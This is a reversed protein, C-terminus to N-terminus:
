IADKTTHCTFCGCPNAATDDSGASCDNNYDWRLMDPYPSGHARHCSICTVVDEGPTVVSSVTGDLAQKAVPALPDYVTYAAYEGDDRLAVDSPHRIWAGSAGRMGESNGATVAHHFRSHCGACLEGISNNTLQTTTSYDVTTGKYVNHKTPSVDQEWDPDEVGTVGSALSEAMANGLFRYWGDDAGAIGTPSEELHHTGNAFHCGQCAFDETALTFHCNYCTSGPGVTAGIGGPAGDDSHAEDVQSIGFVNHGFADGGAQSVWFFNGGALTSNTSGTPPYQLGGNPNYVSPVRSDGLDYITDSGMTNSHCGVCDTLLLEANPGVAPQGQFTVPDGDQSFHMSHCNVCNGEVSAWLPTALLAFLAVLVAQRLMLERKM